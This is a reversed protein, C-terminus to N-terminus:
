GKVKVRAPKIEMSQQTQLPASDILQHNHQQEFPEYSALRLIDTAEKSGFFPKSKVNCKPFERERTPSPAESKSQKTNEVM